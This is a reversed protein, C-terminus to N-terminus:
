LLTGDLSQRYLAGRLITFQSIRRTFTKNQNTTLDLPIIGHQIYDSMDQYWLSNPGDVDYILELELIDFTPVFLQEM